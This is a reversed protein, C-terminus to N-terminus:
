ARPTTSFTPTSGLVMADELESDEDAPVLTHLALTPIAALRAAVAASEDALSCVNGTCLCLRALHVHYHNTVWWRLRWASRWMWWWGERFRAEGDDYAYEAPLELNQKLSGMDSFADDSEMMRTSIYGMDYSRIM